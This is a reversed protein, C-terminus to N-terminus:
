GGKVQREYDLQRQMKLNRAEVQMRTYDEDAVAMGVQNLDLGLKRRGELSYMRYPNDFDAGSHFSWAWEKAEIIHWLVRRFAAQGMLKAFDDLFKARAAEDPTLPPKIDDAM